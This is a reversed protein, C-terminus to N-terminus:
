CAWAGGGQRGGLHAVLEGAAEPNAPPGAAFGAPLDGADGVGHQSLEGLSAALDVVGQALEFAGDAVVGAESLEVPDHELGAGGFLLDGDVFQEVAPAGAGGGEAQPGVLEGGAEVAGAFELVRARPATCPARRM